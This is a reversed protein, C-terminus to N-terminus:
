KWGRGPGNFASRLASIAAKAMSARGGHTSERALPPDLDERDELSITYGTLPRNPKGDDCLPRVTSQQIYYDKAAIYDPFKLAERIDRTWEVLGRGDYADPDFRKLWRATRDDDLWPSLNGNEDHMCRIPVSM